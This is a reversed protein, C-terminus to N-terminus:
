TIESRFIQKVKVRELNIKFNATMPPFKKEAVSSGPSMIIDHICM